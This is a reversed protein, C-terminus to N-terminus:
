YMVAGGDVNIAQGTIGRAADSALYVTLAAVEDADILRRQPSMQELAARAQTEDMGTRQVMNSITGETMPTDVYGPCIANVTVGATVLEAALARTLGLVGHKAAAYAAIYRAAAKAAISAITIIRGNGQKVLEPAFAKSVYYVSTLNIALMQHWLEDPHNLFKHSAAAGANNVLIDVGGMHSLAADHLRAVQSPETVDCAVSYCRGGAAGVAAAVEALASESRASATVMAGAEALALAIARGIGRSAGTVVARKGHLSALGM